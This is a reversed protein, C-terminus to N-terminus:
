LVYCYYTLQNLKILFDTAGRTMTLTMNSYISKWKTGCIILLYIMSVSEAYEPTTMFTELAEDMKDVPFWLINFYSFHCFCQM